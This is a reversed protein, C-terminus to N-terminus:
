SGWAQIGTNSDELNMIESRSEFAIAGGMYSSMGSIASSGEELFEKLETYDKFKKVAGNNEEEAPPKIFPNSIGVNNIKSVLLVGGLGIFIFLFLTIFLLSFDKAKPKSLDKKKKSDNINYYRNPDLKFGDKM